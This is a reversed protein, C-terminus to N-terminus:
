PSWWTFRETHLQEDPVGLGRAAAIAADMWADPGCIFVDHRALDPVIRHLLKQDHGQGAPAWRGPGARRGPLYVIRIGRQAALADLEDRFAFDAETSARYILTAAGAPYPLSELLARLPTIGIGSAMMTVRTRTRGAGTLNGYPGEFLVRTGPRLRRVLASDDGLGKVTIRLAAPGPAASVSYPHARSWGPGALFRWQCFQGAQVPLADLRRGTLWVSYVGPTEPVVAQVRLQHRLSLYAPLGLRFVVVAGAAIGYATWWFATAAPSSVFDTGTWLEHPIALGVGLYAYLHLLHWSEYRLKPRVARFSTVVVGILAVTGATALLMGPYNVILDWAQALLGTRAAAAYGVTILVIHALMLNFSTLGVLRHTRTLQDHGWSREILPVRAMLLVQILLLDAAILGTLRGMSTVATDPTVLDTLGHNALWLATVVVLSAWTLTVLLARGARFAQGQM